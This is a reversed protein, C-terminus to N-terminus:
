DSCESSVNEKNISKWSDKALSYNQLERGREWTHFAMEM